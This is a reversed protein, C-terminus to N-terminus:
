HAAELKKHLVEVLSGLALLFVLFGIIWGVFPVLKVFSLVVVGAILVKGGAAILDGSVTSHVSVDGGAIYFNDEITEGKGTSVDKGAEFTAGFALMPLLLILVAVTVLLKYRNKTIMRM